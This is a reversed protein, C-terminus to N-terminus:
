IGTTLNSRYALRVELKFVAKIRFYRISSPCRVVTHKNNTQKLTNLAVKLLMETIDHYDTKNTPSIPPGLSFWRATALWQCVKDCLTTCRARISIRVRLMLPSLCQNCLYNNIWSGYSWPWSLEWLVVTHIQLENLIFDEM